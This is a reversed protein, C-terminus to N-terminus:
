GYGGQASCPLAGCPNLAGARPRGAGSSPWRMGQTVTTPFVSFRISLGINPIRPNVVPTPATHTHHHHPALPELQQGSAM